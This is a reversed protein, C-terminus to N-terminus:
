SNPLYVVVVILRLIQYFVVLVQIQGYSKNTNRNWWYPRKMRESYHKEWENNQVRKRKQGQQQGSEPGIDMINNYQIGVNYKSIRALTLSM